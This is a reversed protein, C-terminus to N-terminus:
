KTSGGFLQAELYKVSGQFCDNWKNFWYNTETRYQEIEQYQFKIFEIIEQENIEHLYDVINEMSRKM